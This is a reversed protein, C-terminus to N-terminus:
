FNSLVLRERYFSGLGDIARRAQGYRRPNITIVWVCSAGRYKDRQFFPIRRCSKAFPIQEEVLAQVAENSVRSNTTRCLEIDNDRYNGLTKRMNRM